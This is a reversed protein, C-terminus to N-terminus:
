EQRGRTLVVSEALEAGRVKWPGGGGGRQRGGGSAAHRGGTGGLAGCRGRAVGVRGNLGRHPSIRRLPPPSPPRPSLYGPSFKSITHRSEPTLKPPPSTRIHPSLMALVVKGPTLIFAAHTGTALAMHHLLALTNDQLQTGAPLPPLASALQASLASPGSPGPTLLVHAGPPPSPLLPPHLLQRILGRKSALEGALHHFPDYPPM